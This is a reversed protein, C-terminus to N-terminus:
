LFVYLFASASACVLVKESIKMKSLIDEDMGAELM